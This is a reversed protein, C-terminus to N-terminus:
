LQLITLSECECALDPKNKKRKSWINHMKFIAPLINLTIYPTGSWRNFRNFSDNNNLETGSQANGVVEIFRDVRWFSHNHFNENM